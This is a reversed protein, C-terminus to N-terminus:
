RDGKRYFGVFDVLIQDKLDSGDSRIILTLRSPSNQVDISSDNLGIFQDTWSGDTNDNLVFNLIETDGDKVVLRTAYADPNASRSTYRIRAYYKGNAPHNVYQFTNTNWRPQTLSTNRHELLWQTVDPTSGKSEFVTNRHARSYHADSDSRIVAGASGTAWGQISTHPTGTISSRAHISFDKNSVLNKNIDANSRAYYVWAVEMRADAMPQVPGTPLATLWIKGSDFTPFSPFSTKDITRDVVGNTYFTVKGEQYLMGVKVWDSMFTGPGVPLRTKGSSPIHKHLGPDDPIWRHMNNSMRGDDSKMEVADIETTSYTWFSQHLGPTGTYFRIKAEYYGYGFNQNSIIGGGYSQEDSRTFNIKLLGDEVAVNEARNNGNFGNILRVGERYTWLKEGQAAVNNSEFQDSFVIDYNAPLTGEAYLDELRSVTGPGTQTNTETAPGASGGCAVLLLSALGFVLMLTNTM